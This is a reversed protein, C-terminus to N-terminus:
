YIGFISCILVGLLNHLVLDLGFQNISCCNIKSAPIVFEWDIVGSQLQFDDAGAQNAPYFSLALFSKRNLAMQHNNLGMSFKCIHLIHKVNPRHIQLIYKCSLDVM